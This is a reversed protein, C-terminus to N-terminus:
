EGAYGRPSAEFMHKCEESCFFYTKGQYIYSLKFEERPKEMGCVPDRVIKSSNTVLNEQPHTNTM